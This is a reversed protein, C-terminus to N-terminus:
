PAREREVTDSLALLMEELRDLEDLAQQPDRRAVRARAMRLRRLMRSMVPALDKGLSDGFDSVLQGGESGRLIEREELFGSVMDWISRTTLHDKSLAVIGSDLRRPDDGTIVCILSDQMRRDQRLERAFAAGEGDPMCSDLLILDAREQDLFARAETLTSCEYMRLDPRDRAVCRTIMHRDFTDDDVVLCSSVLREAPNGKPGVHLQPQM